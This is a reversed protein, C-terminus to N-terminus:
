QLPHCLIPIKMRIRKVFKVNLIISVQTPMNTLKNKLEGEDYKYQARM